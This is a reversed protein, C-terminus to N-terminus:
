AATRRGSTHGRRRARLAVLVALASFQLLSASPEPVFVRNTDVLEFVDTGTPLTVESRISGLGPVIWDRTTGRVENIVGPEVEVSVDLQTQVQIADFTGFPVEISEILAYLSETDYTGTQRVSGSGNSFSQTFSGNSALSEGITITPPATNVPPDFTQLVSVFGVGDLFVSSDFNKWLRGGNISDFSATSELGDYPGGEWRAVQALVGGISETGIVTLLVDEFGNVRYIWWDGVESEFVATDFTQGISPSPMLVIAAIAVAAHVFLRCPLKILM